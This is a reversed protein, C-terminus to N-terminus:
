PRRQCGDLARVRPPTSNPTRDGRRLRVDLVRSSSNTGRRSFTNQEVAVMVGATNNTLGSLQPYIVRGCSAARPEVVPALVARLESQAGRPLALSAGVRDVTADPRYTTAAQATRGALRKIERQQEDAPPEYPANVRCSPAKVALRKVGPRPEAIPTQAEPTRRATGREKELITGCGSILSAFVVAFLLLRRDPMWGVCIATGRKWRAKPPLPNPFGKGDRRNTSLVRETNAAARRSCLTRSGRQRWRTSSVM